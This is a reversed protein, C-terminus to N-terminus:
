SAEDVEGSAWFRVTMDETEGSYTISRIRPCALPVIHAPGGCYECREIHENKYSRFDKVDAM